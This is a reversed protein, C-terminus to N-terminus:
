ALNVSGIQWCKMFKRNESLSSKTWLERKILLIEPIDIQQDNGIVETVRDFRRQTHCACNGLTTAACSDSPFCVCLEMSDDQHVWLWWTPLLGPQVFGMLQLSTYRETVMTVQIRSYPHFQIITTQKCNNFQQWTKITCTLVLTQHPTDFTIILVARCQFLGYWQVCTCISWM